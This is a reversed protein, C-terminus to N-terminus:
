KGTLYNFPGSGLSGVDCAMYTPDINTQKINAKGETAGQIVEASAPMGYEPCLEVALNYRIAKEYGPPLGIDLSVDTIAAFSKKTYLAISAGTNPVPWLNIIILPNTWEIYAATPLSSTTSKITLDAWEDLTLIRVPIESNPTYGTNIIGIREIEIPRSTNFNGALGMTYAQQSAVLPFIERTRDFVLLNENSWSDLMQNLVLLADSQESASPTEGSAITGILRLAGKIIDRTTSM